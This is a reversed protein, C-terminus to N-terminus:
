IEFKSKRISYFADTELYLVYGEDIRLRIPVAYNHVTLNEYFLANTDSITGTSVYKTYDGETKFLAIVSTSRSLKTLIIDYSGVPIDIGGVYFGSPFLVYDTTGPRIDVEQTVGSLFNLLTADDYQTLDIVESFGVSPVLMLILVLLSIIKKM